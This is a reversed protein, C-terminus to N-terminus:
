AGSGGTRLNSKVLELAQIRTNIEGNAHAEYVLRLLGGVEPGSDLGCEEM